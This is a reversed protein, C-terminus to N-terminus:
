ILRMRRPVPELSIPLALVFTLLAIETLCFRIKLFDIRNIRRDTIRKLKDPKLFSGKAGERYISRTRDRIMSSIAPTVVGM